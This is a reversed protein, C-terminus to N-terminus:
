LTAEGCRPRQSPLDRTGAAASKQKKVTNGMALFVHSRGQDFLADSFHRETENSLPRLNHDIIREDVGISVSAAMWGKM